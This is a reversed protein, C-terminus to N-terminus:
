KHDNMLSKIFNRVHEKRIQFYKGLIKILVLILGNIKSM